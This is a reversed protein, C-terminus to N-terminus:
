RDREESQAPLNRNRFMRLQGLITDERSSDQGADSWDGQEVVFGRALNEVTQMQIYFEIRWGSGDEQPLFRARFRSRRGLHFPAPYERWVSVYIRKGRDTDAHSRPFGHSDALRTVEFWLDEFPEEKDVSRWDFTVGCASTPVLVLFLLLWRLLQYSSRSLSMGRIYM